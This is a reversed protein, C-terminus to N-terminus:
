EGLSLEFEEIMDLMRRVQYRKADKGPNVTLILPVQPHTYHRHSGVTRELQFGFASLLRELDRFSITAAPNKHLREYLKSPKVM